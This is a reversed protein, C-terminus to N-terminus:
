RGDHDHRRAYTAITEILRRQTVPKALHGTCGADALPETEGRVAYATLAVIPTPVVRHESEWQRILATAELGDMVPMQIDMLVLEFAGPGASTFAEVAERGDHVFTLEYPGDALFREIVLENDESDEAVLIRAISDGGFSRCVALEEPEELTAEPMRATFTFTTGRDIESVASIAGGMLDVLAKSIALGLGTGGYRRTTSSDAQTFRDFVLRLRDSPIGIGTDGVAFVLLGPDNASAGASVTVTGRETFKVANALLNFLVQRLREPDGRVYRPVDEAVSCLLELGKQRAQFSMVECTRALEDHLDFTLEDLQFAGAEIKSLDLVSNLLNLLSQGASTMIRVYRAQEDALGSQSLLEGMGILANMPTRIEHSMSALFDGKAESAVVAERRAAELDREIQKLGDINEFLVVYHAVDGDGDRIASMAARTWFHVADTRQLEIEGHWEGEADVAARAAGFVAAVEPSGLGLDTAPRGVIEEVDWGSETSFKPNVWEVVNDADTIIVSSPGLELAASLKELQREADARDIANSFVGGLASLMSVIDESWSVPEGVSEVAIRGVAEDGSMVPVVLTSSVGQSELVERYASAEEPLRSVDDVRVCRQQEYHAAVWPIDWIATWEAEAPRDAGPRWWEHVAVVAHKDPGLKVHYAHDASSFRGIEALSTLMLGTVDSPRADVFRSAVGAILREVQARHSLESSARRQETVDRVFSLVSPRGDTTLPASTLEVDVATGDARRYRLGSTGLDADADFVQEISGPDPLDLLAMDLLEENRYGLLDSMRPNAAVIATSGPM